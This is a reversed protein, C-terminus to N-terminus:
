KDEALSLFKLYKDVPCKNIGREYRFVDQPTTQLELPESENFVQAFRTKSWGLKERAERIDRAAKEKFM